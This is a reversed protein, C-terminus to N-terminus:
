TTRAKAPTIACPNLEGQQGFRSKAREKRPRHSPYPHQSLAMASVGHQHAGGEGQGEEHGMADLLAIPVGPSPLLITAPTRQRRPRPSPRIVPAGHQSTLSAGGTREWLPRHEESLALPWTGESQARGALM